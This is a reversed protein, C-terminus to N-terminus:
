KVAVKKTIRGGDAHIIYVGESYLPTEVTQGPQIVFSAVPQGSVSYIVVDAERRLTSSVIVKHSGVAFTLSGHAPGEGPDKDGIAFFSDESDDFLIRRAAGKVASQFYPRFPVTTIVDGGTVQDFQKGTNDLLYVQEATSLERSIYNPMFTYSKTDGDFAAKRALIEDDSVGITVAVPSAFTVTQQGLKDPIVALATSAEFTGSLDFEYYREGPFGILYPVGNSVKPYQEFERSSNYYQQYTDTNRDQRTNHQYYYDWLFTNRVTKDDASNGTADPYNFAAVYVDPDSSAKNRGTYQRLWYEHGIKATSGEETPSGSYFHTIEGKDNTTVLEASFPLSVTEWGKSTDVYREPLRQYWMRKDSNFVYSIPANFDQKDILLHDNSAFSSGDNATHVLHGFVSMGDAVSVRRYKDDIYYTDYSPELFYASLVDHTAKNAYDLSGDLAEAPAYALLNATEDRNAISYIGDDDLLPPYFAGVTGTASGGSVSSYKDTTHLGKLYASTAHGETHGAFDIATMHPYATMTKDKSYAVFNVAPNFHAVDLQKSQYYAPARFVRNSRENLVLRGASKYIRSPTDQHAQMPNHGYTLTQGFFLYDDPWIPYYSVKKTEPDIYQREDATEPITGNAFRFDGDAFRSEVYRNGGYGSSCLSIDSAYRGDDHKALTGDGNDTYYTYTTSGGPAAHDNYRKWLYFGNLNYAVTGDYFAKDPMKRANGRESVTESYANSAPYYCNVLQTGTGTPNGFVAKTGPAFGSTASSKVWCNEVYGDGTNVIGAETFSGTVGLNYINGCLSHFLSHDLGNITYGDGHFNGEFCRESEQGIPTWAGTHNVDTHLFFELSDGQAVAPNMLSHGKLPGEATVVGNTVGTSGNTLLSLDFFNKLQKAGETADTVYIKSLRKVPTYDVYYHHEKDDMVKTLDHYNAVSVPVHNSYTKGLYTKAYYAVYYGDQYWYFPNHNPTFEVGNTHSEADYINQFVEWGGGTVEYAGPSVRPERLGVNTGPLVMQPERIEEIEPIGSKFTIHINVVHRETVPTIHLGSEDSEEYDYQYIVTIIKEKSLDFIDSNRSVYLTSYEVPAIGHITFFRQMNPLKTYITDAIVVGVPVTGSSYTNGAGVGKVSKVPKGEGAEGITYEKRCYYYTKPELETGAEEASFNLLTIHSKDSLSTYTEESIVQGVSYNSQGVNFAKNVVYYTGAEAVTIPAYHHQENPLAEYQERTLEQGVDVTKDVNDKDKYTLATEGDNDMGNFTANYDVPKELSYYAQPKAISFGDYQYKEGQVGGYSPDILLDLADYNFSFKARDAASMSSWAELGRYNQNAAYYNGGYLGDKTCYYAPVVNDEIEKALAPNYDPNNEADGTRYKNIYTSREQKSMKTNIYIYETESLKVTSTSIYATDISGAMATWVDDAYDSKVITVGQYLKQPTADRKTTELEDATVIYAQAFSGQGSPVAESHSSLIGQYTTYVNNSIIDGEKYERQGYVGDTGSTLRYTPGNHYNAKENESLANYAQADIKDTRWTDNGTASTATKQTYWKNWDKPNNVEYTLIYGTDHGMNNSSRFIYDFDVDENKEVHHVKTEEGAAPKHEARLADYDEKTLVTGAPITGAPYKATGVTTVCEAITVYTDQVFLSKENHNLLYYDWYSIPDNRHYTVNKIDVSSTATLEETTGGSNYSYYAYLNPKVDLLKMVGHSAATITLPINVSESYANPAGTYASIYQDYVYVEGKIYWYHAPVADSGKYRHSEPYCDDIITQTSHVFNGSTEWDVQTAESSVPDTYTYDRRTVAGENLATATTHKYGTATRVGHVNKAYVFGGGIGAQVNILDLEVVGTIYGWDKEKVSTGTSNETTLELYVGSALAVQNHSNGNNRTRDNKHAKKWNYFTYDSSGYAGEPISAQYTAHDANDSTRVATHFDVDSTLAGLFNVVSYIGFYNGHMPRNKNEEQTLDATLDATIVSAKKNLSVERVRNITYNTYDVVEPVRDQAGQMVMRSGFVGCFDARQITNLIRGAYRSCVGNEVWFIDGNPKGSDDIIPTWGTKDDSDGLVKTDNSSDFYVGKFLALLEDTTITSTVAYRKGENDVCTHKCLYRLEYYAQERIPLARFQELTIQKEISYYDTGYNTINLGRYGDVFTLNGDGYLGGTHGTGITILDRHYVDHISATANGFITTANAYVKDSGSSTNGGAFIANHIIIGDTNLSAWESATKNGLHQLESTPVYDGVAYDHGNITVAATVRTHPEILVKCDETLIHEDTVPDTVFADNIKEYYYGERADDYRVGEKVGKVMTGDDKEYASYVYGIDGGGFVNGYGEAVGAETGVVGGYINVRTQGFVYGDSYLTGQDGVNNYGRGGGFVDHYVNGGYLTVNTKGARYIGNLTRIENKEGSANITGRGIAAIEGGGFISNRVKGGYMTVNTYDVNSNDIYGGGFMCGSDRLRNTGDGKWTEDHLKEEYYGSGGDSFHTIGETLGESSAFHRYGIYGNNLTLNATGYVPGGEGGGYANREIAPIGNTFSTGDIDGIIVHTEGLIDLNYSATIDGEHRGVSGAWGGGYVNRATGGKIYATASATFAADFLNYVTGSTGAAYLDKKVKGGLLAIYTTGYVDGSGLFIDNVSGLGGGYAYNNVTAGEHIIVNTNYRKHRLTGPTDKRDDIEAERAIANQLNTATNSAYANNAMDSLDADYGSGGLTWAARWKEPTMDNNQEDKAPMTKLYKEVSEANMVGGAEGGGYVEYVEAGSNLNVETYESWTSSGCGAGYVTATTMGYTPHKERVPASINIKGYLTRRKQNNGGYLAGKMMANDKDYILYANASNYNVTGEYVDCPLYIDSGYAGAFISGLKITSNVPVNVITRRTVGENLSGGYTAGIQGCALDIIAAATVGDANADATEKAIGMGVGCNQGAGFVEMNAFTTEHVENPIDILVYSRNQMKNKSAMNVAAAGQGAGFIKNVGNLENNTAVPRFNVFANDSHPATVSRTVYAGLNYDYDGYCGGFIYDVHGKQYETYSAAYLVGPNEADSPNYVKSLSGSVVKSKFNTDEGGKGFITGGLDNAGYTHDVIYPFGTRGIYTETHGLIDANCSGAFSNFLRGNDLSVICNGAIPGEFGGGYIFVAEAVDSSSTAAGPKNQDCLNVHTSFRSDYISSAENTVTKGGVTTTAINTSKGIVGQESGGFIQFTFGDNLNVTTSGWIETKEGSGGGFVNLAQGLPDMGQTHMAVGTHYNSVEYDDPIDYLKEATTNVEDFLLDSEHITGNLNIIVNGNVRGSTFCGGYVNGGEFRRHWNDVWTEAETKERGGSLPTVPEVKGTAAHYAVTNYELEPQGTEANIYKESGGLEKMRWRMPRIRVGTLNLQLRDHIPADDENSDAFLGDNNLEGQNGLVGGKYEANYTSAEVYANNCGGVLKNYIIIPYDINITTKGSHIMSGINGGCFLSGIYSKYEIYDAPDGNTKSDFVVRPMLHSAAGEMYEKFTAIDTLAISSYAQGTADTGDDNKGTLNTRSMTYLTGASHLDESEDKTMMMEGNNGLFVNDAIVHSGIKLELLPDLKVTEVTACNGGVYVAGGIITKHTESTGALRLSVQETNPRFKNLAEVSTKGAPISYYLDGFIDHDKLKPNDTYPYAGNGGGYVNGRVSSYIGVANGGYVNGSIDNGGYVNNIDGGRVLVRASLGNPFKYGELNQVEVPNGDSDLPRVDSMRCGGFVNDIVIQSNAAIELLLGDNSTMRGQNGGSYVNRVKGSRLDWTPRIAMDAKNNGGFLRGIQFEDSSPYSFGTNIGMQKFRISDLLNVAGVTGAIVEKDDKTWIENVVKSPNDVCIVANQKVTANNGGGYAYVISGGCIELYSRNLTPSTFPETDTAVIISDHDKLTYTTVGTESDTDTSLKYDGNGGGFLQGIYIKQADDTEREESDVTETKTSIHVYSDWAKTIHNDNGHHLSDPLEKKEYKTGVNGAIDNGGFVKNIIVFGSAHKGDINVFTRGGVDARRAGGYVNNLNGAHITVETNGGTDGANGGGYINGGISIQAAAAFPLLQLLLTFLLKAKRGTYATIKTIMMM